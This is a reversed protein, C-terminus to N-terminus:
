PLTFAYWGIETVTEGISVTELLPLEAFSEADISTIGEDIIVSRIRDAYDYWTGPPLPDRSVSHSVPFDLKGEGSVTLVGTAENLYWTINDGCTGEAASAFTSVTLATLLALFLTRLTRKM